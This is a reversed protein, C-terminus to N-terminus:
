KAAKARSEALAFAAVKYHTEFGADVAIGITIALPISPADRPISHSQIYDAWAMVVNQDLSVSKPPRTSAYAPRTRTSSPSQQIQTKAAIPSSPRDAPPDLVATATEPSSSLTTGRTASKAADLHSTKPNLSSQKLHSPLQDLRKLANSADKRILILELLTKMSSSSQSQNDPQMEICVSVMSEAEEFDGLNLNLSSRKQANLFKRKQIYLYALSQTVEIALKVQM